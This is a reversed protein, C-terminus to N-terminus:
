GYNVSGNKNAEEALDQEILTLYIDREFPLMNEIDDLTFFPYIKGINLNNRYFNVM